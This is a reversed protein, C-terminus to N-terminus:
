PSSCQQLMQFPLFGIIGDLFNTPASRWPLHLKPRVRHPASPRPDPNFSARPPPPRRPGRGGRQGRHDGLFCGAPVHLPISTLVRMPAAAAPLSVALDHAAAPFWTAPSRPFPLAPSPWPPSGQAEPVRLLHLTLVSGKEAFREGPGSGWQAHVQM